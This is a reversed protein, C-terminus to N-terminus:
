LVVSTSSRGLFAAPLPPWEIQGARIVVLQKKSKKLRRKDSLRIIPYYQFRLYIFLFIDSRVAYFYNVNLLIIRKLDKFM